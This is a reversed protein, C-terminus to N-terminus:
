KLSSAFVTLYCQMKSIEKEVHIFLYPTEILVCLYFLSFRM